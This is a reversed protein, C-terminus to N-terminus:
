KMEVKMLPCRIELQLFSSYSPPIKIHLMCEINHDLHQIIAKIKNINCEEILIIKNRM